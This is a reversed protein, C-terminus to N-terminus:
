LNDGLSSATPGPDQSRSRVVDPEATPLLQHAMVKAPQQSSSILIRTLTGDDYESPPYKGPLGPRGEFHGTRAMSRPGAGHAEPGSEPTTMSTVM